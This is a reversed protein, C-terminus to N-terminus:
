CAGGSSSSKFAYDGYWYGGSCILLLEETDAFILDANM